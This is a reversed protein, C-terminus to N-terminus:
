NTITPGLFSSIIDFTFCIGSIVQIEALYKILQQFVETSKETKQEQNILEFLSPLLSRNETSKLLINLKKLTSPRILATVKIAVLNNAGCVDHSTRICEIFKNMNYDHMRDRENM